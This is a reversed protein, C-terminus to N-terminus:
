PLHNSPNGLLKNLFSCEIPAFADPRNGRPKSVLNYLNRLRLPKWTTSSDTVSTEWDCLSSGPHSQNAEASDLRNHLVPDVECSQLSKSHVSGVNDKM